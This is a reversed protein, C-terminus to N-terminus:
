DELWRQAEEAEKSEPYEAVIKQYLERAKTKNGGRRMLNAQNLLKAAEPESIRQKEGPTPKPPRAAQSKEAAQALEGRSGPKALQTGDRTRPMLPDFEGSAEAISARVAFQVGPEDAAGVARIGGFSDIIICWPPNGAKFAEHTIPAKAATKEYCQPWDMKAARALEVARALRAESDANVGVIEFHKGDGWQSKLKVLAAVHEKPAPTLANWFDIVLVRDGRDAVKFTSGDECEISVDPAARGVGQLWQRRRALMSKEDSAAPEGLLKLCKDALHADGAAIAAIYASKAAAATPKEPAVLKVAAAHARAADGAELAAKIEDALVSQPLCMVLTALGLCISACGAHPMAEGKREFSEM